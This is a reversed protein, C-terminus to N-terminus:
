VNLSRAITPIEYNWEKFAFLWRRKIEELTYRDLDIPNKKYDSVSNLYTEIKSQIKEFHPINLISYIKKTVEVPNKELDEFRVEILHGQPILSKQTIFKKMIQEYWCFIREKIQQESFEQLFQPVIAKQYMNFTSSYIHCPNRYIHVFKAQPFMELLIKIRATNPPNKLILNNKGTYVVVRRLLKLYQNKWQEIEQDTIDNFLVYKKFYSENQPFWQSHYSGLTSLNSLAFEEEEPIDFGRPMNDHPRIKLMRKKLISKVWKIDMIEIGPMFAQISKVYGWQPDQSLITHLYTTGSRWHGIIFLPSEGVNAKSIKPAYFIKDMIRIPFFLISIFLIRLSKPLRKWTWQHNEKALKLWVKTYCMTLPHPDAKETIRSKM